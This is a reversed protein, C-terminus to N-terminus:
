YQMRPVVSIGEIGEVQCRADAETFLICFVGNARWRAVWTLMVGHDSGSFNSYIPDTEHLPVHTHVTGFWEPPRCEELSAEASVAISDGPATTVPRWREVHATDQVIRGGLCAVREERAALSARWLDHLGTRALSDLRVEHPRSPMQGAVPVSCPLLAMLLLAARRRM